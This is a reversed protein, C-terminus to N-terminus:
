GARLASPIVITEPHPDTFRLSHDDLQATSLTIPQDGTPLYVILLDAVLSHTITAVTVTLTVLSGPQVVRQVVPILPTLCQAVQYTLNLTLLTLHYIFCLAVVLNFATRKLSNSVTPNIM